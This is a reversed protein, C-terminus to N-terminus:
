VIAYHDGDQVYILPVTRKEGSTRGTTTLLLITAGKRWDHGVKGGTERYRKVHEDGFLNEAESMGGGYADPGERPVTSLADPRNRPREPGTRLDHAKGTVRPPRM